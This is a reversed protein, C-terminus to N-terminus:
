KQDIEWSPSLRQLVARVRFISNFYADGYNRSAPRLNSARTTMPPVARPPRDFVDGIKADSFRRSPM